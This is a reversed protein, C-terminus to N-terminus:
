EYSTEYLYDEYLVKNLIDFKKLMIYLYMIYSTVIILFIM